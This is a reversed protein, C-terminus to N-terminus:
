WLDYRIGLKLSHSDIGKRTEVGSDSLVVYKLGPTNKYQYGVDLSVNKTMKYAVGAMLGYTLNYDKETYSASSAPVACNFQTQTQDGPEAPGNPTTVNYNSCNAAIAFKTKTYMLGVGAGVYPTFGAFTGLDVYANAMGDYSSGQYQASAACDARWDTQVEPPVGVIPAGNGDLYTITRTGACGYDPLGGAASTITPDRWDIMPGNVYGVGLVGSSAYRDTASVGFTVDTRIFDNYHYGFGVSGSFASTDQSLRIPEMPGIPVLGIFDNNFISDSASASSDKFSKKFNYSVDGRLYWGSGVEVPVYEEAPAEQVFIPPEFDAALAAHAAMTAAAALALRLLHKKIIM